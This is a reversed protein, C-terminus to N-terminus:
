KGKAPLAIGPIRQQQSYEWKEGWRLKASCLEVPIINRESKYDLGLNSELQKNYGISHGMLFLSWLNSWNEYLKIWM